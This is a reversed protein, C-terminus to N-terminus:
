KCILTIHIRTGAVRPLGFLQVSMRTPPLQKAQILSQGLNHVPKESGGEM